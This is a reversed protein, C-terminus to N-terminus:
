RMGGSVWWSLTPIMWLRPCLVSSSAKYHLGVKDPLHQGYNCWTIMMWILSKVPFCSSTSFFVHAVSIIGTWGSRMNSGLSIQRVWFTNHSFCTGLFLKWSSCRSVPEFPMKLQRLCTVHRTPHSSADPDDRGDLSIVTVWFQHHTHHALFPYFLARCCNSTCVASSGPMCVAGSVSMCKTM